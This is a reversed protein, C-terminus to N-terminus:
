VNENKEFIDDLVCVCVCFCCCVFVILYIFVFLDIMPLSSFTPSFSVAGGSKSPGVELRRMVSTRQV